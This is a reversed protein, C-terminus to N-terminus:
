LFIGTSPDRELVTLPKWETMSAVKNFFFRRGLTKSGAARLHEKFYTNKFLECFEYSFVPDYSAEKHHPASYFHRGGHNASSLFNLFVSALAGYLLGRFFSVQGFYSHDM